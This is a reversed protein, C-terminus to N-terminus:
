GGSQPFELLHVGSQVFIRFLEANLKGGKVDAAIIDLAKDVPVAKKYPRDSATLADYIDCIAMIQSPLPISGSLLRCPYGTGDLKEHHAHAIEPVQRLDPTWPIKSLFRYTHSVHKEIETREELSLSGRETLLRAVEDPKLIPGEEPLDQAEGAALIEELRGRLAESLPKPENALEVLELAERLEELRRVEVAQLEEFDGKSMASPDKKILELQRLATQLRIRYQRTDIRQRLIELEAPFLKKSKTLIHERVGIKGFDHLLAAYRLEQIQKENFYESALPGTREESTRRALATCYGSVRQSHGSTTPDRSEIATVSAQIFGEFLHHIDQDHKANLIAISAHSALATSVNLDTEDYERVQRDASEESLIPEKKFPSKNILQLAGILRNERDALPISLMSRSRYGSLADFAGNHRYELFEGLHYVDRILLPRGELLTYGVISSKDTPVVSEAFAVEVSNNQTLKFRIQKDAWYDGKVESSGPTTEVLYLCGADSYTLAMAKQLILNLLVDLRKEAMLALGIHRLQDYRAESIACDNRLSLCYEKYQLLRQASKLTKDWDTPTPFPPLHLDVWDPARNEWIGDPDWLLAVIHSSMSEIDAIKAQTPTVLLISFPKADQLSDAKGLRIKIGGSLQEPPALSTFNHLLVEQVRTPVSIQIPFAM